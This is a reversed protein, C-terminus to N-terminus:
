AGKLVNCCASVNSVDLAYQDWRALTTESIRVNTRDNVYRAPILWIHEPNLDDRNDFALCIFYEAIHNKGIHFAWSDAWNEHTCRCSSKVDIKYGGGCIFDYGPNGYPMKEVHKFVHSLVREAVHVGLFSACNPNESMPHRTGIRHTYERAWNRHHERHDQNYKRRHERHKRNYERNYEQKCSRCTYQSLGIQNQTINEGVVLPANCKTCNHAM